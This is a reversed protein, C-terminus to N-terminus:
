RNGYLPLKTNPDIPVDRRPLGTDPDRITLTVEDEPIAKYAVALLADLDPLEPTDMPGFNRTASVVHDGSLVETTLRLMGTMDVRNHEYGLLQCKLQISVYSHTEKGLYPYTIGDTLVRGPNLKIGLIFDASRFTNIINKRIEATMWSMFKPNWLLVGIYAYDMANTMKATKALLKDGWYVSVSTSKITRNDTARQVEAYASLENLTILNIREYAQTM